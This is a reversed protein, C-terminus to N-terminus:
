PNEAGNGCKAVQRTKLGNKLRVTMKWSEVRLSELDAKVVDIWRILGM